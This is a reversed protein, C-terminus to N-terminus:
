IRELRSAVREKIGERDMSDDSLRLEAVAADVFQAVPGSAEPLRQAAEALHRAAALTAAAQRARRKAGLLEISKALWVTWTVLSAFALGVLVAKVVTDANLFMGWPSLDRPLDSTGVVPPPGGQAWGITPSGALLLIVVAHRWLNAAPRTVRHFREVQM